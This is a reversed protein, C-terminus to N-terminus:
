MCMGHYWIECAECMIMWADGKVPGRLFKCTDKCQRELPAKALSINGVTNDVVDDDETMAEEDNGELDTQSEEGSGGGGESETEADAAGVLVVGRIPAAPDKRASSGGRDRPSGKDQREDESDNKTMQSDMQEVEAKIGGQQVPPAVAKKKGGPAKEKAAEQGFDKGFDKNSRAKRIAERM